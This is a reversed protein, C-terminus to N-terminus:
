LRRGHAGDDDSDEKAEKAEHRVRGGVEFLVKVVAPEHRAAGLQVLRELELVFPVAAVRARGDPNHRGVALDEVVAEDRLLAPEVVQRLDHLFVLPDQRGRDGGPVGQVALVNPLAALHYRRDVGSADGGVGGAELALAGVGAALEAVRVAREALNLARAGALREDVGVVVRQTARRKILVQDVRLAVRQGVADRHFSGVQRWGIEPRPQVLKERVVRPARGDRAIRPRPPARCGRRASGRRRRPCQSPAPGSRNSSWGASLRRSRRRRRRSRRSCYATITRSAITLRTSASVATKKM